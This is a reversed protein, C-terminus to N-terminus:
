NRPSSFSYQKFYKCNNTSPQASARNITRLKPIMLHSMGLNAATQDLYLNNAYQQISSVLNTNQNAVSSYYM